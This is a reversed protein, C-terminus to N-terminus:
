YRRLDLRDQGTTVSRDLENVDTVLANLQDTSHALARVLVWSIGHRTGSTVGVKEVGSADAVDRVADAYDGAAHPGLILASGMHSAGELYGIGHIAQGIRDPRIHVNDLCVMGGATSRVEVRLRMGAYSFRADDPDWGPTVIEDFFGQATPDATIRTVQRYDADRYAIVQEPVYELRSDPGLTFEVDQVAPREPTRYIRTAGQSALLLPAGPGVDASFHYDEGFYAGGPNVIIYTVQGSDDLYHPQMLRLVGFSDTIVPVSRRGSRAVSLTVSGALDRPTARAFGLSTTM